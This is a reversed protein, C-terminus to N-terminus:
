VSYITPLTLHTYSVTHIREFPDHLAGVMMDVLTSDGMRQGFRNSNSIFPGRSMNEAGASVAIQTDGLQISQAACVLAQLGSGCLRNVNFATVSPLCGANIASVRSLYLDSPQSSVVHGMVVQEVDKPEIKAREIAHRVVTTAMDAVPTDKLRGGFTGIATRVASTIVVEHM